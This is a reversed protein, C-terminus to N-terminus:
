GASRTILFRQFRTTSASDPPTAATLCHDRRRRDGRRGAAGGPGRGTGAQVPSGGRLMGEFAGPLTVLGVM